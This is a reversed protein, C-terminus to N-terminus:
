VQVAEQARQEATAQRAAEAQLAGRHAREKAALESELEQLV